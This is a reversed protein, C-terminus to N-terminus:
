DLTYFRIVNKSGSIVIYESGTGAFQHLSIDPLDSVLESIM